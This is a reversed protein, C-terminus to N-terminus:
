QNQQWVAQIKRVITSEERRARTALEKDDADQWQSEPSAQPDFRQYTINANVGVAMPTIVVMLRVRRRLGEETPIWRTAMMRDQARQFDVPWQEQGSVEVIASWLKDAQEQRPDPAEAAKARLEQPTYCGAMALLGAAAILGFLIRRM